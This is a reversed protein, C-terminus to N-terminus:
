IINNRQESGEVVKGLSYFYSWLTRDGNVERAEDRELRQNRVRDRAHGKGRQGQSKAKKSSM